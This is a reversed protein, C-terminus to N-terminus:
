SIVQRKIVQSGKTLVDVGYSATTMIAISSLLAPLLEPGSGIVIREAGVYLIAAVIADAMQKEANIVPISEIPLYETAALSVAALLGKEFPDAAGSGFGVAAQLGGAALAKYLQKEFTM